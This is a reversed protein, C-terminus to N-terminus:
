LPVVPVAVDDGATLDVGHGVGAVGGDAEDQLQGIGLIEAVGVVPHGPFPRLPLLLPPNSAGWISSVQRVPSIGETSGAAPPDPPLQGPCGM